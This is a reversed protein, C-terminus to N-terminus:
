QYIIREQLQPHIQLLHVQLYMYSDRNVVLAIYVHVCQNFMVLKGCLHFMAVAVYDHQGILDPAYKPWKKPQRSVGRPRM